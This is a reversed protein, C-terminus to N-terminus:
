ISEGTKFYTCRKSKLSFILALSFNCIYRELSKITANRFSLFYFLIVLTINDRVSLHM